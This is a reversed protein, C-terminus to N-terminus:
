ACLHSLLLKFCLYLMFNGPLIAPKFPAFDTLVLWNWTTCLINEPKIDGHVIGHSHCIEVCKLLQYILWLKEIETLFPRTSLRDHLNSYIYQRILYVPVYNTKPIKNNSKIWLEYPLLNPYRAPSLTKWIHSLHREVSSIIDMDISKNDTGNTNPNDNMYRMFVKVVVPVGDVKAVYTKMFKGNGIRSNSSLIFKPLDIQFFIRPDLIGITSTSQSSIGAGPISKLTKHTTGNNSPITSNATNGM